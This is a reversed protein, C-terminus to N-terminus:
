KSKVVSSVVPLTKPDLTPRRDGERALTPEGVPTEWLEDFAEDEIRREKCLREAQAPTMLKKTELEDGDIGHGHFFAYVKEEEIWKRHKKSAVLKFGQLKEGHMLREVAVEEAAALLSRIFDAKELILRFKEEDISEVIDPWDEKRALAMTMEQAAPCRGAAPCYKCQEEGATLPAKPDQTAKAAKRFFVRWEEIMERNMLAGERAGGARPQIVVPMVAEVELKKAEVQPVAGITYCLLQYNDDVEVFHYGSKFDVVLLLKRSPIYVLVDATGWVLSALEPDLAHGTHTRVEVSFRAGPSEDLVRWVYDCAGAVDEAMEDNFVIPSLGEIAYEKGIFQYPTTQRAKDKLCVELVEHM